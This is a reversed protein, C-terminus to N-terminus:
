TTTKKLNARRAREYERHYARQKETSATRKRSAVGAPSMHWLRQCEMCHNSFVKRDEVHGHKCPKGTFFRTLGKEKAEARSILPRMGAVKEIQGNQTLAQVATTYDWEILAQREFEETYPLADIEEQTLVPLALYAAELEEFTTWRFAEVM